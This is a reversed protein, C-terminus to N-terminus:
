EDPDKNFMNVLEREASHEFTTDQPMSVLLFHIINDLQVVNSGERGERFM